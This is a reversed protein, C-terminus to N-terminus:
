WIRLKIHIQDCKSFFNKISFKMKQVTYSRLKGNGRCRADPMVKNIVKTVKSILKLLILILVTNDIAKNSGQIFNASNIYIGEKDSFAENQKAKKYKIKKRNLKSSERKQWSRRIEKDHDLYDWQKIM